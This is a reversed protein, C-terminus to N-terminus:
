EKVNELVNNLLQMYDKFLVAVQSSSLRAQKYDLQVTVSDQQSKVRLILDFQKYWENLRNEEQYFVPYLKQSEFKIKRFYADALEGEESVTEMGKEVDEILTQLNDIEEYNIFIDLIKNEKLVPLSFEDTECNQYLLYHFMAMLISEEKVNLQEGLKSLYRVDEEGIEETFVQYTDSEESCFFESSVLIGKEELEKNTESREIFTAIQKVTSHDFLELVTIKDPYYEEIKSYVNLLMMSTGGVNFFNDNLGFRSHNLVEKWITEVQKEIETLNNEQVEENSVQPLIPCDTLALRDVKGNTNLPMSDIKIYFQPIMYAPIRQELFARIEDINVEEDAVYYAILGKEGNVEKCLVAIEKISHFNLCVNEIEGLEIRYGRLKIQNDKRGMCRIEGQETIMGLDGTKYLRKQEGNVDTFTVFREATLDDRYLYGKALGKGAIGIEGDTGMSVVNNNEDIIYIEYNPLPQGITIEENVNLKKYTAWVTAETPGYFNYVDAETQNKINELMGNPFPEGGVVIAKLVALRKASDTDSLLLSMKSPTAQFIDVSYREMLKSLQKVNKQEEEDALIVTAGFLLPALSEYVFIDFSDTTANIVKTQESLNIVSHIGYIFNVVAEHQIVVGKPNGTSGSTFIVYATDKEDNVNLVEVDASYDIESAVNIYTVEELRRVNEENILLVNAKSNKVIYQLREIPFKSDMPVYGAGAKLVGLISVFLDITRSTMIGVLDGKSINLKRLQSALINSRKDLERYSISENHCIVAEKEGVRQAVKAFLDQITFKTQYSTKTCNLKQYVSLSLNDNQRRDEKTEM